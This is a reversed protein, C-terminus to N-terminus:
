GVHAPLRDCPVAGAEIRWRRQFPITRGTSDRELAADSTVVAVGSLSDSMSEVLMEVRIFDDFGIILVSDRGIRRWRAGLTRADSDVLRADGSDSSAMQDLRLWGTLDAPGPAVSGPRRALVSEATKFCLRDLRGVAMGRRDVGILRASNVADSLNRYVTFRDVRITAARDPADGGLSLRADERNEFCFWPRREDGAWRPLARASASDAEFCPFPYDDGDPHGFTRGSITVIGAFRAMGVWEGSPTRERHISDLALGRVSDGRQITAPDFENQPAAVRTSDAAARAPTRPDCGSGVLFMTALTLPVLRDM